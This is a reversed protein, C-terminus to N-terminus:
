IKKPRCFDYAWHIMPCDPDSQVEIEQSGCLPCFKMKNPNEEFSPIWYKERDLKSRFETNCNWCYHLPPQIVKKIVEVSQHNHHVTQKQQEERLRKKLQEIERELGKVVPNDSFSRIKEQPATQNASNQYKNFGGGSVLVKPREIRGKIYM